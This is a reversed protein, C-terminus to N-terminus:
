IQNFNQCSSSWNGFIKHFIRSMTHKSQMVVPDPLELTVEMVSILIHIIRLIAM